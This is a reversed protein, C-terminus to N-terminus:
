LPSYSLIQAAPAPAPSLPIMRRVPAQAPTAAHARPAPRSQPVDDDIEIYPVSTMPRRVPQAPQASAQAGGAQNAREFAKNIFQKQDRASARQFRERAEEKMKKEALLKRKFVEDTIAATVEVSTSGMLGFGRNNDKASLIIAEPGMHSKVMELAEKMTRAEFKRVQM